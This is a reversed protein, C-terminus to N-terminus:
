CDNSKSEIFVDIAVIYSKWPYNSFPQYQATRRFARAVNKWDQQNEIFRCSRMPQNEDELILTIRFLYGLLALAQSFRKSSFNFFLIPDAARSIWLPKDSSATEKAKKCGHSANMLITSKLKTSAKSTSETKNTKTSKYSKQPIPKFYMGAAVLMWYKNSHHIKTM